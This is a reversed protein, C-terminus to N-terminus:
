DDIALNIEAPPEFRNEPMDINYEIKEYTIVRTLGGLQLRLRHPVLVGAVDKYDAFYRELKVQGMRTEDVEATKVLM